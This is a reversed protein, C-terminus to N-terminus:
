GDMASIGSSVSRCSIDCAGAGLTVFHGNAARVPPV